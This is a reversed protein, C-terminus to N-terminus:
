TGATSRRTAPEPAGITLHLSTLARPTAEEIRFRYEGIQVLEGTRPIRGTEALIWGAVTEFDGAPVEAGVAQALKDIELRASMRWEHDSIRRIEDEENDREDRIDGIIEELLDEITVIGVSGGYEDQIVAFHERERRMEHLLEDIRKTEPVYKVPRLITRVSSAPDNGFLLDQTHVVGIIRDVREEYVPLRTHANRVAIEGADQLTSEVAIADVDVLPTMCEEVTVETIQFVRQIMRHDDASIDEPETETIMMMIEQRTLAREETTGALFSLVRAWGGVVWLLPTLVIQVPSLIQAVVPALLNAHHAYVTKPLAEGLLLAFPVWCLVVAIDSSYGYSWLISAVVTTSTIVCVNTGVLCTALLRDEHELLQLAIAAGSSGDTAEARLQVRDASVLAIESGSFFGQGLLCAVLLPLATIM